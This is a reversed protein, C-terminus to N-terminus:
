KSRRGRVMRRKAERLQNLRIPLSGDGDTTIRLEGCIGLSLPLVGSEPMPFTTRKVCSIPNATLTSARNQDQSVFRIQGASKSKGGSNAASNQDLLKSV